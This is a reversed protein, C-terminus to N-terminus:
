RNGPTAQKRCEQAWEGYSCVEHMEFELAGPCPEAFLTALTQRISELADPGHAELGLTWWVDGLAEFETLEVSCLSSQQSSALAQLPFASIQRSKGVRLWASTADRPWEVGGLLPLSLKLWAEVRGAGGGQIDFAEVVGRRQKVDFSSGGRIKVSVGPMRPCVLYDDDRQEAAQPFRSFWAAMERGHHGRRIWRVEYTLVRQPREEGTLSAVPDLQEVRRNHVQTRDSDRSM